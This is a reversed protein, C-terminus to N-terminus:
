TAEGLEDAKGRITGYLYATTRKSEPKHTLMGIEACIIEVPTQLDDRDGITRQLLSLCDRLNSADSPGMVGMAGQWYQYIITLDDTVSNDCTVNSNNKSSSSSSSSPATIDGNYGAHYKQKNRHRRQREAGQEREKQERFMRRNIITIDGNDNRSVEAIKLVEINKLARNWELKTCSILRCYDDKSM